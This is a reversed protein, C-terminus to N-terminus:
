PRLILPMFVKHSLILPQRPSWAPRAANHALLRLNSGDRNMIWLDPTDDLNTSREFVIYQGDPSVSFIGAFESTFHTIQKVQDTAFDYEYLNADDFGEKLSLLLGSADPLWKLWLVLNAGNYDVLDTGADSSGETTRWIHGEFGYDDYLIQNAITTRPAWDLNCTFGTVDPNLLTDWNLGNSPNAAVADLSCGAGLVFGIQSGDARWTPKRTGFSRIGGGSITLTGANVTQGPQVDPAVGATFWRYIGNIAVVPQGIGPGFDAVNTFTLTQSAGGTVTVAQGTPAGAVYILYPGDSNYNRVTIVVTGKPLGAFTSFDPANTVKRYDSGDPRIAYLDSQFFSFPAEHSSVFAIESADPKWVLADVGGTSPAPNNWIVHDDTGDPNILHITDGDTYAIMGPIAAATAPRAAMPMGAALGAIACVISILKLSRTRM